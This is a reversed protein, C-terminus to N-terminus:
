LGYQYDIDGVIYWGDHTPERLSEVDAPATYYFVDDDNIGFGDTHTPETYEGFSFYFGTDLTSEGQWAVDAYFGIPEM